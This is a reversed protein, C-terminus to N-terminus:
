PLNNLINMVENENLVAKRVKICNDLKRVIAFHTKVNPVDITWQTNKGKPPLPACWYRFQYEDSGVKDVYYVGPYMKNM